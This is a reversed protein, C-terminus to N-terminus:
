RHFTRKEDDALTENLDSTHTGPTHYSGYRLHGLTFQHMIVKETLGLYVYRLLVLLLMEHQRIMCNFFLALKNQSMFFIFRYLFLGM